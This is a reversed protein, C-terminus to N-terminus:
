LVLQWTQAVVPGRWDFASPKKCCSGTGMFIQDERMRSKMVPRGSSPLMSVIRITTAGVIM